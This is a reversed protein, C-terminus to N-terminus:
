GIMKQVQHQAHHVEKITHSYWLWVPRTCIMVIQVMQKLKNSMIHYCLKLGGGLKEKLKGFEHRMNTVANSEKALHELLRKQYAEDPTFGEDIFDDMKEHLDNRLEEKIEKVEDTAKCNAFADDLYKILRVDM